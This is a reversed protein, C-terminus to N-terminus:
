PTACLQVRSFRSLLLLLMLLVRLLIHSGPVCPFPTSTNSSHLFCQFVGAQTISIFVDPVSASLSEYDSRLVPLTSAVLLVSKVRGSHFDQASFVVRFSKKKSRLVFDWSTSNDCLNLFTLKKEWIHEHLWINSTCLPSWLYFLFVEQLTVHTATYVGKCECHRYFKRKQLPLRALRSEKCHNTIGFLFLKTRLQVLKLVLFSNIMARLASSLCVWIIHRTNTGSILFIAGFLSLVSSDPPKHSAPTPQPGPHKRKGWPSDTWAVWRGGQM